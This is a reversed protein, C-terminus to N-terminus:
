AKPQAAAITSQAPDGGPTVPQLLMRGPHSQPYSPTRAQSRKRVPPPAGVPFVWLPTNAPARESGYSCGGRTRTPTARPESQAGSRVPPPAGVHFARLPTDAPAHESGYSCGGRTRNPPPEPNQSPDAKAGPATSRCPIGMAAHRRRCAIFRLLVRRPHSPTPETSQSPEAECRPPAGVPFWRVAPPPAQCPQHPCPLLVLVALGGRPTKQLQLDGNYVEVLDGVIDLGLGHGTVAEDLRVGRQLVRQRDAESIGPGDDEVSLLVGQETVRWQLRVRGHAWKCANDLLNGLLELMDEREFPWPTEGQLDPHEIRVREG